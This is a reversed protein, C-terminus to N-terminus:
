YDSGAPEAARSSSLQAADETSGTQEAREEERPHVHTWGHPAPIVEVNRNQVGEQLQVLERVQVQDLGEPLEEPAEPQRTFSLLDVAHHLGEGLSVAAAVGSHKLACTGASTSTAESSTRNDHCGTELCPFM